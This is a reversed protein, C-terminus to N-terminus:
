DSSGGILNAIHQFMVVFDLFLNLAGLTGLKALEDESVTDRLELYQTKITQTDYATLGAFLFVAILSIAYSTADSGIFVNAISALILGILGIFLFSGWASIDKKTTYGWLSLAAFSGATVFFATALTATTFTVFMTALSLGILAAFIYLFKRAGSPSGRMVKGIFFVMILPAFLVLFFLPSSYITNLLQTPLITSEGAKMAVLDNGFIYSTLGSIGLAVSMERYVSTMHDKLGIDVAQVGQDAINENSNVNNNM